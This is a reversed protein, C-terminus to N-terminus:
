ISSKETHLNGLQTKDHIFQCTNVCYLFHCQTSLCFTISFLTVRSHCQFILLVKQSFQLIHVLFTSHTSSSVTFLANQSICFPDM